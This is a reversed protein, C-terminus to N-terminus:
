TKAKNCLDFLIQMSEIPTLTNVDVNQLTKLIEDSGEFGLQM